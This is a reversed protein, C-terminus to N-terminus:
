NVLMNGSSSVKPPNGGPKWLGTTQLLQVTQLAAGRVVWECNEWSTNQWDFPGGEYVLFCNVLHCNKFVHEEVKLTQGDITEDRHM